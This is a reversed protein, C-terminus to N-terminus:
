KLDRRAKKQEARFRMYPILIPKTLLSDTFTEQRLKTLTEQCPSNRGIQVTSPKTGMPMLMQNIIFRKRLDIQSLLLNELEIQL